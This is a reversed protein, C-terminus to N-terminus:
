TDVTLNAADTTKPQWRTGNNGGTAAVVYQGAIVDARSNTPLCQLVNNETTLNQWYMDNPLTVTENISILYHTVGVNNANRREVDLLMPIGPYEDVLGMVGDAPLRTVDTSNSCMDFRFLNGRYYVDQIGLFKFPHPLSPRITLNSKLVTLGLYGYPSIQLNGGSGTLFPLAPQIGGNANSDDETQESMQFWPARLNPPKAALDSTLVTCFM